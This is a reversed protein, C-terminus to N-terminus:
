GAFSSLLWRIPKRSFWSIGIIRCCAYIPLPVREHTLKLAREFAVYDEQKEFLTLRAVARNIVHFCTGAPCLRPCRPMWFVSLSLCSSDINLKTRQTRQTGKRKGYCSLSQDCEPCCFKTGRPHSVHIDIQQQDLDLKVEAVSWPTELGLIHQYLEKDEM